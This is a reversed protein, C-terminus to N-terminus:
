AGTLSDVTTGAVDPSGDLYAVEFYVQSPDVAFSYNGSADSITSGVFANTASNFLKVTCAALPAGNLDRTVGAIVKNDPYPPDPVRSFTQVTRSAVTFPIGPVANFNKFQM